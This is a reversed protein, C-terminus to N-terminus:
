ENIINNHIISENNDQLKEGINTIDPEGHETNQPLLAHVAYKDFVNLEVIPKVQRKMGIDQNVM